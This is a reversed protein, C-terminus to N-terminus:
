DIERLDRSIEERIRRRERLGEPTEPTKPTKPSTIGEKERESRKKARLSKIQFGLLTIICILLGSLAV